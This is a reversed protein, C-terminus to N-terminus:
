GWPLLRRKPGCRFKLNKEKRRKQKSCSIDKKITYTDIIIRPKGGKDETYLIHEGPESTFRVHNKVM